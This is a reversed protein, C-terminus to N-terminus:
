SGAEALLELLDGHGRERLVRDIRARLLPQVDAGLLRRQVTRPDVEAAVAVARLEHSRLTTPKTQM